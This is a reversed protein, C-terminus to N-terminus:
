ESNASLNENALKVFDEPKELDIIIEDARRLMLMGFRRRHNLKIKVLGKNGSALIIRNKSSVLGFISPKVSYTEVAEIHLFPFSAKFIMGQKLLIGNANIEHQTFMPTITTILIAMFFALSFGLLWIIQIDANGIVLLICALIALLGATRIIYTFLPYRFNMAESHYINCLHRPMITNIIVM